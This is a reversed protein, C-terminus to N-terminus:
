VLFGGSIWSATFHRGTLQQTYAVRLAAIIGLRAIARHSQLRSAFRGTPLAEVAGRDIMTELQARSIGLRLAAEGISLM